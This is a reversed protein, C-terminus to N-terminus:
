SILDPVARLATVFSTSDVIASAVAQADPTANLAVSFGVAEFLPVDSRSDGIAM